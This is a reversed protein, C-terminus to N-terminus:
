TETYVHLVSLISRHANITSREAGGGEWLFLPRIPHEAGFSSLKLITALM